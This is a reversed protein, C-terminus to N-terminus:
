SLAVEAVSARYQGGDPALSTFWVIVYQAQPMAQGAEVKVQGSAGDASGLKTAGELSRDTAAYVTIDAPDSPLDLTVQHVSTPQGLDLLLGVGKKLNGFDATAYRESTWSTDPDGDYVRAAKSNGESGDGQPDFGTSSLIAIPGAATVGAQPAPSAPVKAPPAKVKVSPKPTPTSLTADNGSGVLGRYGFFLALTVFAAIVLIVVLSQGRSASRPMSASSPAQEVPPPGEGYSGNTDDGSDGSGRSTQGRRALGTPLSMRQTSQASGGQPSREDPNRALSGLKGGVAGAAAGAGALVAGLAKTTAAGAAAAKDSVTPRSSGDAGDPGASPVPTTPEGPAPQQVMETPQLSQAHGAPDHQLVEHTSLTVTPESGDASAPVGDPLHTVVPLATSGHTDTSGATDRSGHTETSDAADTAGPLRLVVTPEVSARRVPERAWPAIRSAFEEPSSPGSAESLTIRCLSDLDGPVGPVIESPAVAGGPDRPASAVSAEPQVDPRGASLPWRGTLAAYVVAVLCVADRRAASASDTEQEQPGDIAAAVAVGSVRIGGDPAILVHHPTLRLHHLGRQGAAELGKATEGAIRRAEEAPLPGQLLVTALSQSESLAEQVIFSNDNQTGVDLIRVLRTDEVGAARRAADLVGARNPHESSIITLAVERELTTDHASWHELVGGPSLRRRLDYRGGLLTGPGVGQVGAGTKTGNSQPEDRKSSLVRSRRIAAM